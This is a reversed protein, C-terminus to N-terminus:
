RKRTKPKRSKVKPKVTKVPKKNLKMESFVFLYLIELIGVTNIVLLVVFWIPSNRKSSKWLALGKWLLSWVLIIWLLWEPLSTISSIDSDFLSM